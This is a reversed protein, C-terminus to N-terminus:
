CQFYLRNQQQSQVSWVPVLGSTTQRSPADDTSRMRFPAFGASRGACYGVLYSSTMLRLVALANPRVTGGIISPRASSTISYVCVKDGLPVKSVHRHAGIM